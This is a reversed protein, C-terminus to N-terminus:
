RAPPPPPAAPALPPQPGIVSTLATYACEEDKSGGGVGIAGIMQGDAIIPLGGSVAYVGLPAWRMQLSLNNAVQNARQHSSDRTYLVSQAKLQATEINIPVQGDMRYAHVIQGTPSLIFVTVAQNNKKAFEVCAQTIKEATEVSIENKILTKKAAEDSIVFKGINQAPLSHSGMALVVAALAITSTLRM